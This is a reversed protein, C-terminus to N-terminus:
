ASIRDKSENWVGGELEAHEHFEDQSLEMFSFTEAGMGVLVTRGEVEVLCLAGKAGLPLREIIKLRRASGLPEKVVYKRYVWSGGVLVALCAFLGQFMRSVPEAPEPEDKEVPKAVTGRWSAVRSAYESRAEESADIRHPASAEQSEAAVCQFSLVLSLLVVLYRM